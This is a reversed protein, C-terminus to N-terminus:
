WGNWQVHKFGLAIAQEKTLSRRDDASQSLRRGVFGSKAVPNKM